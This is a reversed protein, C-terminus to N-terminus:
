QKKASLMYKSYSQKVKVKWSKFSTTKPSDSKCKMSKSKTKYYFRFDKMEKLLDTIIM